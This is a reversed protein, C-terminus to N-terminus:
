LRRGEEILDKIKLGGLTHQRAIERISETARHRDAATSHEGTVSFGDHSDNRASPSQVAAALANRVFAEVPLDLQAAREVVEEPVEITMQM